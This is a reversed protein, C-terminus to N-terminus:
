YIFAQSFGNGKTIRQLVKNSLLFSNAQTNIFKPTYTSGTDHHWSARM